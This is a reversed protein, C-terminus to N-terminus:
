RRRGLTWAAVREHVLDTRDWARGCTETLRLFASAPLARTYAATLDGSADDPCHRQPGGSPDEDDRPDILDHRGPRPESPFVPRM